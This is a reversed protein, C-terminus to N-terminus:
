CLSQFSLSSWRSFVSISFASNSAFPFQAYISSLSKWRASSSQCAAYRTHSCVCLLGSSGSANRCSSSPRHSRFESMRRRKCCPATTLMRVRCSELSSGSGATAVSRDGSDGGRCRISGNSMDGDRSLPRTTNSRPQDDQQLVHTKRETGWGARTNTGRKCSNTGGM